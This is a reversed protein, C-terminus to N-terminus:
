RRLKVILKRLYTIAEDTLRYCLEDDPGSAEPIDIIDEISEGDIYIACLEGGYYSIEINDKVYGPLIPSRNSVFGYKELNGSRLDTEFDRNEQRVKERAKADAKAKAEAERKAKAEKAAKAQAAMKKIREFEKSTM